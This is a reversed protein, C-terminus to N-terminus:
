AKVERMISQHVEAAVPAWVAEALDKPADYEMEIVKGEMVKGRYPIIYSEDNYVFFVDGKIEKM